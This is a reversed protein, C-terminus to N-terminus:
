LAELTTRNDFGLRASMAGAGHLKINRKLCDLAAERTGDLREALREVLYELRQKDTDLSILDSLTSM